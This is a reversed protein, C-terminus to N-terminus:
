SELGINKILEFHLVRAFVELLTAGASCAANLQLIIVKLTCCLWLYFFFGRITVGCVVLEMFVASSSFSFQDFLEEDKISVLLRMLIIVFSWWDVKDWAVGIWDM